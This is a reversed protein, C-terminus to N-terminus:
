CKLKPGPATFAALLGVPCVPRNAPGPRCADPGVQNSAGFKVLIAPKGTASVRSCSKYINSTHTHGKLRQALRTCVLTSEFGFQPQSAASFGVRHVQLIGAACTLIPVTVMAGWTLGSSPRYYSYYM